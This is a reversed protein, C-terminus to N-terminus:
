SRGGSTASANPPASTKGLEVTRFGLPTDVTVTDADVSILTVSNRTQGLQLWGPTEDGIQVLAEVGHPDRVLGHLTVKIETTANPGTTTVFLASGPASRPAPVIPARSLATPWSATELAALMPPSSLSLGLVLWGGGALAVAGALALLPLRYPELALPPRLV